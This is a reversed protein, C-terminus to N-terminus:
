NDYHRFFYRAALFVIFPIMTFVAIAALFAAKLPIGAGFSLAFSLGKVANVPNLSSVLGANNPAGSFLWCLAFFMVAAAVISIVISKKM